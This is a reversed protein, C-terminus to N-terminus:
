GSAAATSYQPIFCMPAKGPPLFSTLHTIGGSRPHKQLAKQTSHLASSRTCPFQPMPRAKRLLKLEAAPTEEGATGQLGLASNQLDQCVRSSLKGEALPMCDVKQRLLNEAKTVAEELLIRRKPLAIIGTVEDM